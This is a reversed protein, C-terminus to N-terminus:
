IRKKSEKVEIEHLLRIRLIRNILFDDEIDFISDSTMLDQFADEKTKYIKNLFCYWEGFLLYDHIKINIKVGDQCKTYKILGDMSQPGYSDQIYEIMLKGVIVIVAFTFAIFLYIDYNSGIPTIQVLYRTIEDRASIMLIFLSILTVYVTYM